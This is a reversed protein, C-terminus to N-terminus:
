PPIWASFPTPSRTSLPSITAIRPLLPAPLVVVSRLMEPSTAGRRPFIVSSPWGSTPTGACWITNRPMAWTGSPRRM